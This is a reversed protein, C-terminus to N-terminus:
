PASDVGWPAWKAPDTSGWVAVIPKGLAAAIHMAGGDPTVVISATSMIAILESLSETRYSYPKKKINSILWEAAGDDGPHFRNVSNGPSWLLIIPLKLREDIVAALEKYRELPWRNEPKRSSIQLIVAYEPNKLGLRKLYLLAKERESPLPNLVMGPPKGNIGLPALLGMIGEVEHLGDPPEPLPRNLFLRASADTPPAYGIRIRAGSLFALRAARKSYAYSCAIAADFRERRLRMFLALNKLHASLPAGDSHKSKEYIFVKDIDPNGAV